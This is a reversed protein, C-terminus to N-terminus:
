RAAGAGAGRGGTTAGAVAGTATATNRIDPDGTLDALPRGLLAPLGPNCLPCPVQTDCGAGGSLICRHVGAIQVIHKVSWSTWTNAWARLKSNPLVSADHATAFALLAPLATDPTPPIPAEGGGGPSCACRTPARGTGTHVTHTHPRRVDFASVPACVLLRYALHQADATAWWAPDHAARLATRLSTGAHSLEPPLSRAPAAHALPNGSRAGPTKPHAAILLSVLREAVYVVAPQLIAARYRRLHDDRCELALHWLNQKGEMGCHPCRREAAPAAGAPAGTTHGMGNTADQRFASTYAGRFPFHRLTCDSARTWLIISAQASYLRTSLAMPTGSGSPAWLSAPSAHVAKGLVHTARLGRPAAWLDYHGVGLLWKIHAHQSSLDPPLRPAAPEDNTRVSITAKNPEGDDDRRWLGFGLARQLRRTCPRIAHLSTPAPPRISPATSPGLAELLTGEVEDLCDTWRRLERRARNRRGTTEPDLAVQLAALVQVAPADKDPMLRLHQALRYRHTLIRARAYPIGTDAHIVTGTINRSACLV